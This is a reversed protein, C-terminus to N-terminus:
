WDGWPDVGDEALMAAEWRSSKGPQPRVSNTAAATAASTGVEVGSRAVERAAPTTEWKADAEATSAGEHQQPVLAASSLLAQPEQPSRPEPSGIILADIELSAARPPTELRIFETPLVCQQQAAHTPPLNDQGSRLLRELLCKGQRLEERADHLEQLVVRLAAEAKDARATEQVLAATKKSRRRLSSVAGVAAPKEQQKQQEQHRQQQDVLKQKLEAVSSRASALREKLNRVCDEKEEARCHLLSNLRRLRQLEEQQQQATAAATELERLRKNHRRVEAESRRWRVALKQVGEYVGVAVEFLTACSCSDQMLCQLLQLAHSSGEDSASRPGGGRGRSASAAGKSNRNGDSSCLAGM